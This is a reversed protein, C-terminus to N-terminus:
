RSSPNRWFGSITGDETASIGWRYREWWVAHMMRLWANKVEFLRLQLVDKCKRFDPEYMEDCLDLATQLKQTLAWPKLGSFQIAFEIGTYDLVPKGVEVFSEKSSNSSLSSRTKWYAELKSSPSGALEPHNFRIWKDACYQFPLLEWQHAFFDNLFATMGGHNSGHAYGTEGANGTSRSSLFSLMEDFVRKSPRLLMLGTNFLCWDKPPVVSKSRKFPCLKGLPSYEAIGCLCLAPAALHVSGGVAGKKGPDSGKRNLTAKFKELLPDMNRLVLTDLGLFGVANFQTLGFSNLGSWDANAKENCSDLFALRSNSRDATEFDHVKLTAVQFVRGVQPHRWLMNRSTQNVAPTVMVALAYRSKVEFLSQALALAAPVESDSTVIAAWVADLKIQQKAVAVDESACKKLSKLIKSPHCMSLVYPIQQKLRSCFNIPSFSSSMQIPKGTAAAV